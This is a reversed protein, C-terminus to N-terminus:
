AFDRCAEYGERTPTQWKTHRRVIMEREGSLKLTPLGEKRLHITTADVVSNLPQDSIEATLLPRDLRRTPFRRLGQGSTASSIM